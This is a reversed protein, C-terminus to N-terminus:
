RFTMVTLRCTTWLLKGTRSTPSRSGILHNMTSPRTSKALLFDPLPSHFDTESEDRLDSRFVYLGGSMISNQARMVGNWRAFAFGFVPSALM